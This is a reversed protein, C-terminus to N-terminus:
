KLYDIQPYVEFMQTAAKYRQRMKWLTNPLILLGIVLKAIKRPLGSHIAFTGRVKLWLYERVQHADFYRLSLYIETQHPLRRLMVKQRSLGATIVRAKHTRLGGRPAHHHLVEITPNYSMLTGNLYIRMGLDGDAQQGKDYALDFLGSSQLVERRILTNNTPFVDSIRAYTFEYPAPGSEPEVAYGSSVPALSQHINKLHLEILNNQIEDDDDIFLIYDGKSAQLGVNRATSQGAYDLHILNLPLDKFEEALAMDREELPTQDVVVIELPKITQRRLQDLVVRLYPYRELTPILVTVRADELRHPNELLASRNYILDRDPQSPVNIKRWARLISVLSSNGILVARFISWWFQLRSFRLHIFLLEDYLPLKISEIFSSKAIMAPIHRVYVGQSIYRHGMELAAGALSVFEKHVGGMKILVETRVLCAALSVRWSTSVIDNDPDRNLMWTPVVFNIWTPLGSTGLKLGAHWVDGPTTAIEAIVATDPNGLRSDWFLWFQASSAQSKERVVNYLSQTDANVTFVEGLPWEPPPYKESQWILDIRITQPM